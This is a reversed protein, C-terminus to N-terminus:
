LGADPPLGISADDCGFPNEVPDCFVGSDVAAVPPPGNGIAASVDVISEVFIEAGAPPIRGGELEIAYGGACSSDPVVHWESRDIQMRTIIEDCRGGQDVTKLCQMRLRISSEFNEPDLREDPTCPSFAQNEVDYTQCAPPKALCYYGLLGIIKTRIAELPARFDGGCVTLCQSADGGEHEPTCGLGNTGFAEALEYYRRGSYAVGFESNCSSQIKGQCRGQPCCVNQDIDPNFEASEPDCASNDPTRPLNYTLEFVEDSGGAMYKRQGAIAAIILQRNPDAKLSQLFEVYDSVPTLEDRFWECNSNDARPIACRREYCAAAALNGCESQFCQAFNGSPCLAPDSYGDPAGDMNRDNPGYKCIARKSKTPNSAPDSCDPEDTIILVVLIADPRLFDPEVGPLNKLKSEACQFDYTSSVLNNMPDVVDDCCEKFLERNPGDCSLSRRIAELGKEFGDGGTGLTAMCRFKRELDEQSTFNGGKEALGSKIIPGITMVRDNVPDVLLDDCDQTQPVDPMGTERNTCSLAPQPRAPTAQFRGKSDEKQMDTNVFAIRYDAAQGLEQFLFDSFVSFNRALNRQEECMSGSNDILFLLDIKTKAPLTTVDINSASVVKDLPELPHNNCASALAGLLTFGLTHHLSSKVSSM